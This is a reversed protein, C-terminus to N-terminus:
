GIQRASIATYHKGESGYLRRGTVRYTGFSNGNRDKPAVARGKVLYPHCGPLGFGMNGPLSQRRNKRIALPKLVSLPAEGGNLPLVKTATDDAEDFVYTQKTVFRTTSIGIDGVRDDYGDPSRTFGALSSNLKNTHSSRIRVQRNKLPTQWEEDKSIEVWNGKLLAYLNGARIATIFSEYYDEGLQQNDSDVVVLGQVKNERYAVYISEAEYPHGIYVLTETEYSIPTMMKVFNTFSAGDFGSMSDPVIDGKADVQWTWSAQGTETNTAVPIYASVSKIRQLLNGLADYIFNEGSRHVQRIGDPLPLNAYTTLTQRALETKIPTNPFSKRYYQKYFTEVQTFVDTSLAGDSPEQQHDILPTWYDWGLNQEQYTILCGRFREIDKSEGLDTMDGVTFVLAAGSDPLFDATGDRIVLKDDADIDLQVEWEGIIGSLANWYPQGAPFDVRRLPFNPVNTQYGAFGCQTAVYAMVKDVDLNATPVVTVPNDVGDIDPINLLDTDAITVKAPDNLVVNGLPTTDLRSQLLSQATLTFSDNPQNGNSSLRFDSRRLKATDLDFITTWVGSLYEEIKFHLVADRTILSRKSLDALEIQLQGAIDQASEGYDYSKIPIDTGDATLSARLKRYQSNDSAPFVDVLFNL